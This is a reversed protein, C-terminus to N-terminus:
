VLFAQSAVQVVFKLQSLDMYPVGFQVPAM